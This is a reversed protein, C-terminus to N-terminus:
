ALPSFDLSQAMTHYMKNCPADAKYTWGFFYERTRDSSGLDEGGVYYTAGGSSDHGCGAAQFVSAYPWDALANWANGTPYFYDFDHVNAANTTGGFVYFYDLDVAGAYDARVPFLDTKGTWSDGSPNYEDHDGTGQFQRYGSVDGGTYYINGLYPRGAGGAMRAPSPVAQKGVWSDGTESYQDNDSLVTPGTFDKGGFCYAHDGYTGVAMHAQRPPAPMDTKTTYSLGTGWLLNDRTDDKWTEGGGGFLNIGDSGGPSAAAAGFKASAIDTKEAWSDDGPDYQDTADSDTYGGFCFLQQVALKWLWGNDWYEDACKEGVLLRWKNDLAHIWWRRHCADGSQYVKENPYDPILVGNPNYDITKFEGKQIIRGLSDSVARQAILTGAPWNRAITGDQGRAVTLNDGQIDTIKCIELNGAADRLTIFMNRGSAWGQHLSVAYGHILRLVTASSNTYELLRAYTLDNFGHKSYSIAM